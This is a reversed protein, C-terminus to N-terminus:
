FNKFSNIILDTTKTLMKIWQGGPKKKWSWQRASYICLNYLILDHYQSLQKVLQWNLEFTSGTAGDYHDGDWSSFVTLACM